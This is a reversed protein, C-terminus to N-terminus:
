AGDESDDQMDGVTGAAALAPAPAQGEWRFLKLANEARVKPQWEAPFFDLDSPWTTDWDPYGSGHVLLDEVGDITQLVRVLREPEAPPAPRWTGIRVHDRVYDSPAHRVGPAARRYAVYEADFRWLLSPLWSVGGGMVLVQLDRYREFVGQVIMSVVHTMLSQASFARYEGYLSPTGGATHATLAESPADCGAHIVIPLGREAAAAYIPHYAPHGFPKSLGNVAMLVAVMGPEDGVRAIEAVADGAVQNPVLIVGFLRPDHRLWHEITWDNTARAIERALHTNQQAPTFRVEDHCLVARDV